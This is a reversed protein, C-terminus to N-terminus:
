ACYGRYRRMDVCRGGVAVDRRTKGEGTGHREGGGQRRAARGGPVAGGARARHDGSRARADRARRRAGGLAPARKTHVGGVNRRVCGEGPTQAAGPPVFRAGPGVRRRRRKSRNRRIAVSSRRIAVSRSADGNRAFFWQTFCLRDRPGVSPEVSHLMNAASFLVVRGMKPEIKVPARLPFPYLILEGGDGDRWDPNLYTLVTVRRGDVRADSDFHLPFCGGFGANRQLKVVQHHLQTQAVSPLMVNLLTLLSRDEAVARLAPAALAESASLAHMEAEFIHGKELRARTGDPRVLVTANPRMVGPSSALRLLEDRLREALTTTERDASQADERTEGLVGDLAGDVVAFGHKVLSTAVDGVAVREAAAAVAAAEPTGASAPTGYTAPTPLSPGSSRHRSGVCGLRRIAARAAVRSAMLVTRGPTCSGANEFASRIQEVTLIKMKFRKNVLLGVYTTL